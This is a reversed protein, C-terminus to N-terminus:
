NPGEMSYFLSDGHCDDCDGDYSTPEINDGFNYPDDDLFLCIACINMVEILGQPKGEPDVYEYSECRYMGTPSSPYGCNEVANKLAYDFKELRTLEEMKSM